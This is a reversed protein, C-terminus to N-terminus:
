NNYETIVNNKLEVEQTKFNAEMETGTITLGPKHIIVKKHTKATENNPNFELYDTNLIFGSKNIDNLYKQKIIINSSLKIDEIIPKAKHHSMIGFDAKIEYFYDPYEFIATHPQEFLSYTYNDSFKWSNASTYSKLNGKPDYNYINLNKIYEAPEEVRTELTSGGLNTQKILSYTLLVILFILVYFYLKQM